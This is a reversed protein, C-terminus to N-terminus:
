YDRVHCWTNETVGQFRVVARLYSALRSNDGGNELVSLLLKSLSYAGGWVGVCPGQGSVAHDGTWAGAGGLFELLLDETWM